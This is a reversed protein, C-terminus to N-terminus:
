NRQTHDDNAYEFTLTFDEYDSTSDRPRFTGDKIKIPTYAAMGDTYAEDGFTEQIFALPSRALEMLWAQAAKPVKIITGM